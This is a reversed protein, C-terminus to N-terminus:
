FEFDLSFQIRRAGTGAIPQMFTPIPVAGIGFIPNIQSVNARNLLNFAEAVLDLRATKGFPIYKLVRFDINAVIPTGLSNRGFGLPTDSLPLAHSGSSDLGTLPNVPRGSDLTVIPPWSLTVSSARAGIMRRRSTPNKKTASLSNGYLMLRSGSSSTNFLCPASPEFTSRIRRSSVRRDKTKAVELRAIGFLSGRSQGNRSLHGTKTRIKPSVSADSGYTFM